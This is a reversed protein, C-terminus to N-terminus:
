NTPPWARASRVEARADELDTPGIRLPLNLREFRTRLGLWSTGLLEAARSLSIAEDLYGDLVLDYRDQPDTLRAVVEDTLGVAVATTQPASKQREAVYRAAARLLHYDDVDIIAVEAKGHVEVLVTQGSRAARVVQQTETALETEAVHRIAQM